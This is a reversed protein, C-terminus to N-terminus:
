FVIESGIVTSASICGLELKTEDNGQHPVEMANCPFFLMWEGWVVIWLFCVTFDVRNFRTLFYLSFAAIIGLCLLYKEQLTDFYVEQHM